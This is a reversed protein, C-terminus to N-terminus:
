SVGLKRCLEVLKGLAERQRDPVEMNTAIDPMGQLSGLVASIALSSRVLARNNAEMANDLDEMANQLNLKVLKLVEVFQDPPAGAKPRGQRIMRVLVGMAERSTTTYAEIQDKFGEGQAMITNRIPPFAAQRLRALRAGLRTLEPFM